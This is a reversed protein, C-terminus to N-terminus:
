AHYFFLGIILTRQKSQINCSFLHCGWFINQAQTGTFIKGTGQYSIIVLASKVLMTQKPLSIVPVIDFVWIVRVPDLGLSFTKPVKYM